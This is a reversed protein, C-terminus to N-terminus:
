PSDPEVIVVDQLEFFGNGCPNIQLDEKVLDDDSCESDDDSTETEYEGDSSKDDLAEISLNFLDPRGIKNCLQRVEERNDVINVFEAVGLQELVYELEALKDM